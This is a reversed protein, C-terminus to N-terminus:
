YGRILDFVRGALLPAVAGGATGVFIALGYLARHARTGLLEAMLPSMVVHNGGCAFGDAAAYVALMQM